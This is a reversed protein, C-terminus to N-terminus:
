DMEETGVWQVVVLVSEVHGFWQPVGENIREDVVKKVGWLERILANRFKYMWRIGLLGLDRRRRGYCHIMAMCLFLYLSHKMTEVRANVLSRIAGAVRWGSVVKRSCKAGDTGSGDLVCGINLNRSM